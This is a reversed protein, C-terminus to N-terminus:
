TKAVYYQVVIFKESGATARHSFLGWSFSRDLSWSDVPINGVEGGYVTGTSTTISYSEGYHFGASVGAVFGGAGAEAEIKVGFDFATGTGKANTVSMEISTAGSGEGVTLMNTSKIGEGGGSAILAQARELTPYSLPDGVTHGVVAGDIDPAAGNHENYYNREVPLTVPKRPLNVTVISGVLKADPARTVKYYYVDYPVTTFVVKDENSTSYTYSEEIAVSRTATWDFSSEFSTKFSVKWMSFLGESEYGITFGVSFGMSKEEEVESGTTTGFSTEGGMEVGSWFPNAALVAIPHPDSFLIESSVFEVVFSDGDFDGAAVSPYYQDSDWIDVHQKLSWEGRENYGLWYIEFWGDSAFVVDDRLDGDIDAVTAVIDYAAGLPAANAADFVDVPKQLFTGGSEALNEYIRRQALMEKRGDGDFDAIFTMVMLDGRGAFAEFDPLFAYEFGHAAASWVTDLVFMHITGSNEPLGTFLVENLGDGDLDGVAVNASRLTVTTAQETVTLVAGAIETLTIGTYVHYRAVGLAVNAKLSSEVVVFEDTDDNTLDGAAIRLLKHQTDAPKEYSVTKLVRFDESVDGLLFLAGNFAVLTEDKGNGDLDGCAASFGASWYEMSPYEVIASDLFSAITRENLVAYGGGQQELVKVALDKDQGTQTSKKLYVVVLEDVGDADVDGSAMAKPLQLFSDDGSLGSRTLATAGDAWDLGAHQTPSPTIGVDAGQGRAGAFFIESREHLQTVRRGVPNYDDAVERGAPDKRKGIGTTVGLSELMEEHKENGSKEKPAQDAGCSVLLVLIQGLTLFRM